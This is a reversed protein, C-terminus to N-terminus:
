LGILVRGAIVDCAWRQRTWRMGGRTRSSRSVGRRPSSVALSISNIQTLRSCFYKKFLPEVALILLSLRDSLDSPGTPPAMGFPGRLPAAPAQIVGSVVADVAFWCKRFGGVGSMRRVHRFRGFHGVASTWGDVAFPRCPTLAPDDTCQSTSWSASVTAGWKAISAAMPM